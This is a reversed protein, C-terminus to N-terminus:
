WEKTSTVLYVLHCENIVTENPFEMSHSISCNYVFNGVLNQFVGVILDCNYSGNSCEDKNMCTYSHFTKLYM